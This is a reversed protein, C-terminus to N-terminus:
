MDPRANSEIVMTSVTPNICVSTNAHHLRAVSIESTMLCVNSDAIMVDNYGLECISINM